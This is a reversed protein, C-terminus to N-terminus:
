IDNVLAYEAGFYNKAKANYALAAEEESGFYGIFRPRGGVGTGISARWRPQRGPRVYLSVGKYKSTTLIATKVRNAQNGKRDVIRLNQRRNDVKDHNIHDVIQWKQAGAILRHMYVKQQSERSGLNLAAYAYGHSGIYWKYGTLLAVDKDDILVAGNKVQLVM